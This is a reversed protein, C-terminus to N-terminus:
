RDTIQTASASDATVTVILEEYLHKGLQRAESETLGTITVKKGDCM